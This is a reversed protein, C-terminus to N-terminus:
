PSILTVGPIQSLHYVDEDYAEDIEEIFDPTWDPVDLEEELEEDVAYKDLFAAYVRRKHAETLQPHEHLYHRLRRMGERTMITALMDMGGMVKSNPELNGFERLVQPWIMPSDEYCWVTVPIDPLAARLRAFLASWRLDMPNSNELVTARRGPGAKELLKPLFGVPSRIAMFLELEDRPFLAKLAMMREEAEPYLRQGELADRQSGFFHPNSLIVRDANEEELIADWLLDRSDASPSGTKSAAMCDKLLSRYKAPGPVATGRMLFDEKNRLLTKMLRDEETGHAGAHIIVQM